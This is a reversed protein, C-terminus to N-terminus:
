VLRPGTARASRRLTAFGAMRSRPRLGTSRGRPSRLEQQAERAIELFRERWALARSELTTTKTKM